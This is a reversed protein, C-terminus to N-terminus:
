QRWREVRTRHPQDAGAGAIGSQQRQVRRMRQALGVDDQVVRQHGFVNQGNGGLRDQFGNPLPRTTLAGRLKPDVLPQDLERALAQFDHPQFAAIRQHEATAAFFGHRQDGSADREADHRPDAGPDTAGGGGADGHRM